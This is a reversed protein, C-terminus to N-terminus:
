KIITAEKGFFPMFCGGQRTMLFKVTIIQDTELYYGAGKKAFGVRLDATFGDFDLSVSNSNATLIKGTWTYWRNKYEANFIDKKREDTMRSAGCGIESDVDKYTKGFVPSALLVLALVLLLKKM